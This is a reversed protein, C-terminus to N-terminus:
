SLGSFIIMDGLLMPCPHDIDVRAVSGQSTRATALYRFLRSFILCPKLTRTTKGTIGIGVSSDINSIDGSTTATLHWSAIAGLTIASQFSGGKPPLVNVAAEIRQNYRM